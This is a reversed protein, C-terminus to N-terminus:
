LLSTRCCRQIPLAWDLRAKYHAHPPLDDLVEKLTNIAQTQSSYKWGYARELVNIQHRTLRRYVPDKSLSHAVRQLTPYRMMREEPDISRGFKTGGLVGRPQAAPVFGFHNNFPHHYRWEPRPAKFEPSSSPEESKEIWDMVDAVRDLKQGLRERPDHSWETIGRFSMLPELLDPPMPAKSRLRVLDDSTDLTYDIMSEDLQNRACEDRLLRERTQRKMMYPAEYDSLENTLIPRAEATVHKRMARKLVDVFRDSDHPVEDAGLSETTHRYIESYMEAKFMDEVLSKTVGDKFRWHAAVYNPEPEEYGENETTQMKKAMKQRRKTMRVRRRTAWVQSMYRNYESIFAKKEELELDRGKPVNRDVPLSPDIEDGGGGGPRHQTRKVGFSAKYYDWMSESTQPKPLYQAVDRLWESYETTSSQENGEKNVRSAAPHKNSRSRTMHGGGRARDLRQQQTVRQLAALIDDNAGGSGGGVALKIPSRWLWRSSM